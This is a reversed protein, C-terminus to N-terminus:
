RKRARYASLHIVAHLTIQLSGYLIAVVCVFVLWPSDRSLKGPELCSLRPNDPKYYVPVFRLRSFKGLYIAAERRSVPSKPGFQIVNNSYIRNGVAYEYQIDVSLSKTKGMTSVQSSTIQGEIQPWSRSDRSLWVQKQNWWLGFVGGVFAGLIFLAYLCNQLPKSKKQMDQKSISKVRRIKNFKM